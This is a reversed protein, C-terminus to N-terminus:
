IVDVDRALVSVQCVPLSIRVEQESESLQVEAAMRMDQINTRLSPHFTVATGGNADSEYSM